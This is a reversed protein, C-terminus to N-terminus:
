TSDGTLTRIQADFRQRARHLRVWVTGVQVDLLEAIQEGSMGELEFLVFVTRLKESMEDLARHVLLTAERQELRELPGRELTAVNEGEEERGGFLRERVSARRRHARVVNETIRYLWTTLKGDGRFAPLKKEVVLFVEQVLDEIDARPGGLQAVWRAITQVHARFVADFTRPEAPEEVQPWADLSTPDREASRLASRSSVHVQTLGLGLGKM